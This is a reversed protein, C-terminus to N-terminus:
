PQPLGKGPVRYGTIQQPIAIPDEPLGEHLLHFRHADLLHKRRRARGPLARVDLAHDARNAALAQVVHNNEILGAQRAMQLGKQVVVMLGATM